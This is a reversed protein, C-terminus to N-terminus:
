FLNDPLTIQSHWSLPQLLAKLAVSHDKDGASQEIWIVLVNERLHSVNIKISTNKKGETKERQWHPLDQFNTQQPNKYHQKNIQKTQKKQPPHEKLNPRM